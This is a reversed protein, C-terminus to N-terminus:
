LAAPLSLAFVCGRPVNARVKLDGGMARAFERATCLGIGFGGKGSELVTRARYYRNFAMRRERRSMGPGEDRFLTEVSDGKKGIAVSVKGHPAAYKLDNGFLNWLIQMLMTGDAVVECGDIADIAVDEGDFLDRYDNRFIGYAEECAKKMDIRQREPRKRKGGLRLFDRLNGVIALMRENLARAEDDNRGIMSRMGVLPTMLDHATASIFDDRVRVFRLFAAVALSTLGILVVAVVSGGVYGVLAFPFKRMKPTEYALYENEGVQCWIETTTEGAVYGWPSSGIMGVKRWGQKRAGRYTARGPDTALEEAAYRYMRGIRVPEYRVAKPVETMIFSGGIGVILLAPLCILFVFLALRWGRM